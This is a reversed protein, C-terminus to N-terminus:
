TYISIRPIHLGFNNWYQVADHLIYEVRTCHLMLTNPIIPVYILCGEALKANFHLAEMERGEVSVM